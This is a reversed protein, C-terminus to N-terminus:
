RIPLLYKTLCKSSSISKGSLLMPAAEGGPWGGFLFQVM